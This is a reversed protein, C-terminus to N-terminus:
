FLKCGHKDSPVFSARSEYRSFCVVISTQDYTEPLWARKKDVFFTTRRREIRKRARHCVLMLPCLSM